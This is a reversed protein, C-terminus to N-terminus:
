LRARDGLTRSLQAIEEAPYAEADCLSTLLTQPQHGKRQYTIARMQWTTPLSPDKARAMGSVNLEVIEDGPALNQIVQWRHM